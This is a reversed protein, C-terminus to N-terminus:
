IQMNLISQMAQAARQAAAAAVALAVDAQARRYVADRLSGAGSAFADEARQATEFIAGVADIARAFAGADAASPNPPEAGRPPVDPQLVRVTM